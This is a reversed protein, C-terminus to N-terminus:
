KRRRRERERERVGLLKGCERRIDDWEEKTREGWNIKKQVVIV